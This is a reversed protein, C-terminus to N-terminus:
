FVAKLKYDLNLLNCPGSPQVLQAKLSAKEVATCLHISPGRWTHIESIFGLADRDADLGMIQM